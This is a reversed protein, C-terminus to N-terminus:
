SLKSMLGHNFFSQFADSPSIGSHDIVVAHGFSKM